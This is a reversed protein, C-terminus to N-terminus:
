LFTKRIESGSTDPFGLGCSSQWSLLIALEQFWDLWPIIFDETVLRIIHVKVWLSPLWTFVGSADVIKVDPGWSNLWEGAGLSFLDDRILSLTDSGIDNM